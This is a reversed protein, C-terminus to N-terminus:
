KTYTIKVQSVIFAADAPIDNMSSYEIAMEEGGVIYWYCTPSVWHRRLL